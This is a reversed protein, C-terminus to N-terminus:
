AEPLVVDVGIESGDGGRAFSGGHVHAAFAVLEVGHIKEDVGIQLASALGVGSLTISSTL